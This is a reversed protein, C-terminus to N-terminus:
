CCSVRRGCNDRRRGCGRWITRVACEKKARRAEQGTDPWSHPLGAVVGDLGVNREVYKLFRAARSQNHTLHGYSTQGVPVTPRFGRPLELAERGLYAFRTAVLVNFGSLDHRMDDLSHSVNPIQRFEATSSVQQAASRYINDGLASRRDKAVRGPIKRAFRPDRFYESVPLVEAVQMVFILREKGVPDGCLSDSTFGAIWDGVQKSRRIGPKCTALTLFGWWPNPAFGTDHSLKYSFLRGPEM